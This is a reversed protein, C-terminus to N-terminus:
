SGKAMEEISKYFAVIIREKLEPINEFANLRDEIERISLEATCADKQDWNHLCGAYPTKGYLWVIKWKHKHEM